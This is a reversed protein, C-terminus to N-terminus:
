FNYKSYSRSFEEDKILPNLVFSSFYIRTYLGQDDYISQVLPLHNVKDIYFIIRKAFSNPVKIIQGAKVDDYDKIERNLELIMHDNCLVKRAIQTVNEGPLVKYNIYAFGPNNIELVHYERKEFVIDEKVSMSKYFDISDKISYQKLMDHLYQFGLQLMTYQHHKRLLMSNVSLNLTVYPFSNPNVLIKGSNTGDVYLAEAGPNPNILYTYIKQPNTQLKVLYECKIKKDFVRENLTLVYTATRVNEIGRMMKNYLDAPPHLLQAESVSTMLFLAFLIRFLM